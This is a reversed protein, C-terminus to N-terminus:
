FYQYKNLCTFKLYSLYLNIVTTRCSLHPEFTFLHRSLLLFDYYHSFHCNNVHSAVEFSPSEFPRYNVAKGCLSITFLNLIFPMNLPSFRAQSSSFSGRSYYHWPRPTFCAVEQVSHGYGYTFLRM